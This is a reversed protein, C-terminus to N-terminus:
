VRDGGVSSRDEDGGDEKDGSGRNEAEDVGAESGNIGSNEGYEGELTKGSGSCEGSVDGAGEGPVELGLNVDQYERGASESVGRISGETGGLSREVAVESGVRGQLNVAGELTRVEIGQVFPATSANSHGPMDNRRCSNAAAIPSSDDCASSLDTSKKSRKGGRGVLTVYGVVLGLASRSDHPVQLISTSASSIVFGLTRRAAHM